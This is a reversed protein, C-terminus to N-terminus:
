CVNQWFWFEAYQIFCLLIIFKNYPKGVQLSCSCHTRLQECVLPNEYSLYPLKQMKWSIPQRTTKKSVQILYSLWPFLFDPSPMFLNPTQLSAPIRQHNRLLATLKQLSYTEKMCRHQDDGNWGQCLLEM